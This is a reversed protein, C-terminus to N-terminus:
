VPFIFSQGQGLERDYSSGGWYGNWETKPTMYFTHPDKESKLFQPLIRLVYFTSNHFWKWTYLEPDNLVNM